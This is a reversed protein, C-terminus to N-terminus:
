TQKAIELEKKEIAEPNYLNYFLEIIEERNLPAARLGIQTLGSIILDVRQNLQDLNHELQKQKEPESQELIAPPKKKLLGFIKQAAGAAAESIQIPDYPVVVFFTKNMIANESILSKIFERYEGIQNKLLENTEKNQVQELKNLYNEINLKRSHIFQQLSFNLSNLFGQYAYIILQQEEESKLDFNVGSVMLIKRLGGNKLIVADNQIAEIEIFQQTPLAEKPM